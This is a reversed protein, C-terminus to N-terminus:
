TAPFAPGGGNTCDLSGIGTALDYGPGPVLIGYPTGTTIDHALTQNQYKYGFISWELYLSSDFPYEPRAGYQSVLEVICAGFIPSALSTGWAVKWTGGIVVSEPSGGAADFSLDPIARGTYKLGANTQWSPAAFVTSVGGGGASTADGHWYSESKWNGNSDTTLLTGGIAVGYPTDAPTNVGVGSCKTETGSDGTAAHFTQGQALGQKFIEAFALALLTSECTGFSSNISADLNNDVIMNYADV